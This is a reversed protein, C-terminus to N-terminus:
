PAKLCEVWHNRGDFFSRLLTWGTSSVEEELEGPGYLHYFRIAEEGKKWPVMFDGSLPGDHEDPERRGEIRSLHQERFREQDWTWVSVQLSGGDATVRYAEELARIRAKRDPLHHLAAIMLCLDLVGDDLPLEELDGEML